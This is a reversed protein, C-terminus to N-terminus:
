ELLWYARCNMMEQTLDPGSATEPQGHAQGRAWRSTDWPQPPAESNGKWSGRHCMIGFYTEEARGGSGM